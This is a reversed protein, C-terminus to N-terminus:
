GSISITCAFGSAKFHGYEARFSKAFFRYGHMTTPKLDAECRELWTDVLWAITPSEEPAEGEAQLRHWAKFAKDKDRGLNVLRGNSQVYWSATAKRFWPSTSQRAM